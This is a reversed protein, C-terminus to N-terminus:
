SIEWKNLFLSPNKYLKHYEGRFELLEEHKGSEAIEGDKLVYIIDANQVTSLRHAVIIVTTDKSIRDVAEMVHREAINDLSSTAEDLLLIKPKRLMVRAIAVRQRQGGSLKIGQDGIVTNYGEPTAKIFEHADALKAAEIIEDDTCDLGFRINEKISDHFIFTEQGIYGLKKLYDSRKFENLNIGDVLIEGSTPNYLCALLNSVTTKGVGSNGVIAIKTNRKIKFSINNITNKQSGNYRFSVNNFTISNQFSFERKSIDNLPINLNNKEQLFDYVTEIAPFLQLIIGFQSQCSNLIPIMRYLAFLFTGFIGAYLLIDGKTAYYLGAASLSMTIFLLFNNVISPLRQFLIVKTFSSKLKKVNNEYKNTWFGISDTILITKIGSIMENYVVSKALGVNNLYSAHKYIRSYIINKVLFIYIVGLFIVIVSIKFSIILVFSFYFLCLLINQVLNVLNLFATGTQDVAQQGIYLIDGQKHTAFYEYPQNKLINFVSRDITDRVVAFTKSGLYAAITEIGAMTITVIALLFVSALFPNFNDPLILQYIKDVTIYSQNANLGYNIIPYILSVRFTDM